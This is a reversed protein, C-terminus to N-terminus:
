EAPQFYLIFSLGMGTQPHIYFKFEVRDERHKWSDMEFSTMALGFHNHVEIFYRHGDEYPIHELTIRSTDDRLLRYRHVTPGGESLSVTEREASYGKEEMKCVTEAM